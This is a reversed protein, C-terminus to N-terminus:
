CSLFDCSKAAELAVGGAVLDLDAQSLEIADSDGDLLVYQVASINVYITGKDTQDYAVINRTEKEILAPYIEAIAAKPNNVLREKFSADNLSKLIVERMKVKSEDTFEIKNSM